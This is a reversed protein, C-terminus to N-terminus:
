FRPVLRWCRSTSGSWSRRALNRYDVLRRPQGKLQVVALRRVAAFLAENALGLDTVVDAPGARVLAWDPLGLEPRGGDRRARRHRAPPRWQDGHRTGRTPRSGACAPPRSTAAYRERAVEDADPALLAGRDEAM